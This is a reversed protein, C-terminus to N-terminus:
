RSSLMILVATIQKMVVIRGMVDRSLMLHNSKLSILIRGNRHCKHTINDLISNDINAGDNAKTHIGNEDQTVQTEAQGAEVLRELEFVVSCGTGNKGMSM